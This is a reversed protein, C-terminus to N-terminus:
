AEATVPRSSQASQRARTLLAWGLLAFGLMWGGIALRASVFGALIAPTMPVFVYVGLVFPLFREWGQWRASRIAAVGAAVLTVGIAVSSVGYLAQLTDNVPSPKVADAATIALLEILGLAAMGVVAGWTGFRALAGSGGIRAVWLGYIGALLGLHQVAFWVQALAFTTSAFPYSFQDPAVAPAVFLMAAASAVGLAGAVLCLWGAITVQGPSPARNGSM